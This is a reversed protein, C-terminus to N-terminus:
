TWAKFQLYLRWLLRAAMLLVLGFGAGGLVNLAWGNRHEGMIDRRNALYLMTGAMLPNGLVTLAQGFIILSVPKQGSSLALIAVGMGVLLVVVTFIRPARDRLRAPRGFGDALISGGIMANILFPNMAVALLGVCFVAYATTGLLPRLMQALTGIDAAPQGPIVTATTIMIAMSVGTLVLVGAVADGIGHRLERMTWGRERVLNSQYFAAGVSFTTGLLSAVLIMPDEIAKGVRQPIGLDLDKPIQPLLGAM